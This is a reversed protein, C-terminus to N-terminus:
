DDIRVPSYAKKVLWYEPKERRWGDILGWDNRSVVLRDEPAVSSNDVSAWIAGGLAGETTFIKEWLMKISQGWFNNVNPDRRLVEAIYVPVHACEDHLVPMVSPEGGWERNKESRFLTTYPFLTSRPPRRIM